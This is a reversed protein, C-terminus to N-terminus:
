TFEIDDPNWSFALDMDGDTEITMTETVIGDPALYTADGELPTHAASGDPRVLWLADDRAGSAWGYAIWPGDTAATTTTIPPTPKPASQTTTASAGPGSTLPSPSGTSACGALVLAAVFNLAKRIPKM